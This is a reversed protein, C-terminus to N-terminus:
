LKAFEMKLKAVRARLARIRRLKKPDSCGDSTKAMFASLDAFAVTPGSPEKELIAPIQQSSMSLLAQSYEAHIKEQTVKAYLLSMNIAKHGLMEKLSTISLGANLLSTAYTHRLAHLNIWKKVGLRACLETMVETYREYRPPTGRHGIILFQPQTKKKYNQLSMAQITKIIALTAADLPVRRELGLKIVPVILSARGKPDLQICDFKLLRLETIRLGTRRLLLIAKYFLDDTDALIQQLRRDVGPDLPRPLGVHKKPIMHHPLLDDPNRKIKRNRYLWWLYTRVQWSMTMRTRQHFSKAALYKVFAALNETKLRRYTLGRENLFAHFVRHAYRHAKFAGPRTPELEALFQQSLAPLEVNWDHRGYHFTYIDEMKQPLEGNEIGWRIAHKAAQVSKRCASASTGQLALFRHFELLRQWTLEDLKCGGVKLWEDFRGIGVRQTILQSKKWQPKYHAQYRELFDCFPPRNSFQNAM